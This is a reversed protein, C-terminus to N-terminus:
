KLPFQTAAACVSAAVLITVLDAWGPKRTRAAILGTGGRASIAEALEGSRRVSVALAAVLLDILEDLWKELGTRGPRAPSPRLRRAAVLTRMESVLLPLSRVCLAVAVSGEEVPVRLWKLPTLLRAVAPAIEGLPTTWGMLAAAYLLLVGVLVFRIYADLGGFGLLVGHVTLHPSGGPVSALAGTVVLVIWFWRPPRPWAGRPIRALVTAALLLAFVVGLSGWSPFYSVIVSLGAVVILKTGAWLRHIPSDIKIERLLTIHAPRRDTEPEIVKASTPESGEPSDDRGPDGRRGLNRLSRQGTQPSLV